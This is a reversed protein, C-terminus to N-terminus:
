IQLGACIQSAALDSSFLTNSMKVANFKMEEYNNEDLLKEIIPVLSDSNVDDCAAGVHYSSIMKSLDSSQSTFALVPLGSRMYSLFKGPINHTRHRLDLSIVGIHCQTYLGPIEKAPIEDFILINNLQLKSIRVRLRNVESGRGVLAFGVNSDDRANFALSVLADPNQAIGMNGAYIFIRKGVLATKDFRISCGVELDDSSGLWNNLVEKVGPTRSPIFSLNSHSQVGIINATCYQLWAFFKLVRYSFSDSLLELDLAWEPFIDRVILYARCNSAIKLFFILPGFFISPSYCIIGRFSKISINKCFLLGFGMTIPLLFEGITRALYNVDKIPLSPLQVICIEQHFHITSLAALKGSPVLVIPKLGRSKLALALDELQVAASTRLPYYDTGIIAVRM